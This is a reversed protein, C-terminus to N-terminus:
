LVDAPAVLRMVVVDDDLDPWTVDPSFDAAYSDDLGAAASVAIIRRICAGMPLARLMMQRRGLNDIVVPRVRLPAEGVWFGAAQLRSVADIRWTDSAAPFHLAVAEPLTCLIEEEEHM